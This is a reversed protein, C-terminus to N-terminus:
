TSLNNYHIVFARWNQNDSILEALKVNIERALSSMKWMNRSVTKSKRVRSLSSLLLQVGVQINEIIKDVHYSRLETLFM